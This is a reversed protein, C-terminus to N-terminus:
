GRTGSATRRPTAALAVAGMVEGGAARLARAVEAITAGSTTVDDVIVFRRGHLPGRARHVGRLNRARDDRGLRKQARHPRAPALVHSPRLGARALVLGVPDFGRRRLAARSPPAPCWELDAGVDGHADLARDLEAVAALLLPALVGALGTRGDKCALVVERVVGEYAAGAVVPFGATGAGLVPAPALRARCHACLARDPRGCGACTVPLVIALADLLAERVTWALGSAM